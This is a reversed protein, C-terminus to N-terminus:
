DVWTITGAHFDIHYRLERLFNMGLLGDAQSSEIIIVGIDYKRNPGVKLYDLKAERVVYVGNGVGRAIGRRGESLDVHLRKALKPTITSSSAGTDLVFQAKEEKGRYCLTVPVLVRNGTITVTTIRGESGSMDMDRSKHRKLYKPPIKGPDDIFHVTGKDDEYQYIEGATQLPM